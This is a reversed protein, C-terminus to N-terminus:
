LEQLQSMLSDWNEPQDAMSSVNKVGYSDLLKKIAAKHEGAKQQVIVRIDELTANASKAAPKAPASVEVPPVQKTEKSEKATVVVSQSTSPNATLAKGIAALLEVTPNEITVNIKM